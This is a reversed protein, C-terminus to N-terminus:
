WLDWGALCRYICGSSMSDIDADQLVCTWIHLANIRKEIIASCVLVLVFVLQCKRPKTAPWQMAFPPGLSSQTERGTLSSKHYRAMYCYKIGRAEVRGAEGDNIRDRRYRRWTFGAELMAERWWSGVFQRSDRMRSSPLRRVTAVSTDTCDHTM